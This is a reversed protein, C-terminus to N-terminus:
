GAIDGGLIRQNHRTASLGVRDGLRAQTREADALLRSADSRRRMPILVAALNTQARALAFADNLRELLTVANTFHDHALAYAREREYSRGIITYLSAETAQDDGIQELARGALSRCADYHELALQTESELALVRASKPLETVLPQAEAANGQQVLIQAEQLTLARLLDDDHLREAYRKAQDILGQAQAYQGRYRALISWELFARAQAAFRGSAGCDAAASYFVQQAAEWESLRRLCVGYAIRLEPTPSPTDRLYAELIELWRAWRGRRLGEEWLVEIWEARQDPPLPPFGTLLVYERVEFASEGDRLQDIVQTFTTRRETMHRSRLWDRAAGLLYFREPQGDSEGEVLGRWVLVKLQDPSISWAAALEDALFPRPCLALACCAFQEGAGLTAFVQRLLRLEHRAEQGGENELDWLGAALKLALPNGGFRAYLDDATEEAHGRAEGSGLQLAERVLHEAASLDIEPLALHAPVEDLLLDNPNILCVFAAGLDRLLREFAEPEAAAAEIGDLVVAVRYQLLYDRLTVEGGERLLSEVAQQRVFQASGPQDLWILHDLREADIQRRVLEQVFTTKGIGVEGTILLHCPSLTPLLAEIQGMPEDRGILRVPVSYPLLAYLRRQLQTSRAVQERHRLRQTLLEVGDDNYRTMSRPDVSILSALESAQFGLDARVYRYYLASWALLESAGVQGDAAFSARAQDVPERTDPEALRFTARQERLGDTIEAVLLDAVAYARADSSGPMDPANVRLDVLLLHQLGGMEPKRSPHILSALAARVDERSLYPVVM